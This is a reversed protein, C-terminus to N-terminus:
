TNSELQDLLYNEMTIEDRECNKCHKDKCHIHDCDCVEHSPELCNFTKGCNQCKNLYGFKHCGLCSRCYLLECFECRKLGDKKTSSCDLMTCKNAKQYPKKQRAARARKSTAKPTSAVTSMNRFSNKSNKKFNQFIKPANKYNNRQKPLQGM